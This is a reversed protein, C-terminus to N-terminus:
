PGDPPLRSHRSDGRRSVKRVVLAILIAGFFAAVVAAIPDGNIVVMPLVILLALVGVTKAAAICSAHFASTAISSMEVNM